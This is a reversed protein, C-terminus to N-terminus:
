YEIARPLEKAQSVWDQVSKLAPLQRVLAKEENVELMKAHLNEANRQALEPVTDVGSFELLDAYQTSIGKIRSLDARNIWNLVLKSSIGTAEVIAKRGAPKQGKDLLQEMTHIDAAELKAAYVEGIGEITALKTM